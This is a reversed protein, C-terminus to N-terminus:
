GLHARYEETSVLWAVLYESRVGRGIADVWWARLAPDPGHGLYRQYAADVLRGRAAPHLLVLVALATRSYGSRVVAALAARSSADPRVGFVDLFLADVFGEPSGGSRVYFDDSGLFLAPAIEVIAGAAMADVLAASQGPDPAHGLRPAAEEAVRRLRYERTGVLAVALDIRGAATGAIPRWAASEGPTPPRGLLDGGLRDIYRAVPDLVPVPPALNRLVVLGPEYAGIAVDPRGDSSLDAVVLGRDDHGSNTPLSYADEPGLRGNAQQLRVGVPGGGHTIVLDGDGDRDVDAVRVAEAQFSEYTVPPGLTGGATQAMVAVDDHDLSGLVYGQSFAVDARGDGTLDGVTMPGASWDPIPYVAPDAFSGDPGQGFVEVSQPRFPAYTVLDPRGDGTVDGVAVSSHYATSVTAVPGLTTGDSGDYVVIGSSGTMVIEAAGDGDLDAVDVDSGAALEIFKRDAFGGDRQMFLDIGYWKRLVLDTDGDGDIDGAALFVDASVGDTDYRVVKALSGTPGQLFVFLKHDNAPDTHGATAMAVDPRGDGNFDGTALGQSRSSVGYTQPELFLPATSCCPRTSTNAPLSATSTTTSPAAARGVLVVLGSQSDAVVVDTRGDGSVDGLAMMKPLVHDGGPMPFSRKPDLSHDAAQAHVSVSQFGAHLVVLDTRHDGNVDGAAVSDPSDTTAYGIEPALTGDARQSLIKARSGPQNGGGVYAVDLRGDGDLDGITVGNCQFDTTPYVAPPAFSGDAAQAYVRLEAGNCTLVDPRGDGTLDGVELEVQRGAAVIVPPAFGGGGQGRLVVVEGEFATPGIRFTKVVLDAVGDGDVDAVVVQQAGAVPVAVAAALAGLRQLYVEVSHGTALAADDRGDGDLDGAAMGGESDYDLRTALTQVRTLSGDPAQAFLDVHDADPHNTYDNDEASVVVDGRGDGTFDGVAVGRARGVDHTVYPAFVPTPAMAQATGGLLAVVPVLAVSVFVALLRDIRLGGIPSRRRGRSGPEATPLM